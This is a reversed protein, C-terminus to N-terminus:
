YIHLNFIDHDKESYQIAVFKITSYEERLKFFILKSTFQCDKRQRVLGRPLSDPLSPPRMRTVHDKKLGRCTRLNTFSPYKKTGLYLTFPHLFVGVIWSIYAARVGLSEWLSKAESNASAVQQRKVITQRVRTQCDSKGSKKHCFTRTKWGFKAFMNPASSRIHTSM